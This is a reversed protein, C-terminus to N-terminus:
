FLAFLVVSSSTKEKKCVKKIRELIHEDEPLPSVSDFDLLVVLQRLFAERHSKLEQVNTQSILLKQELDKIRKEYSGFEAKTAGVALESEELQIKLRKNEADLSLKRQTM